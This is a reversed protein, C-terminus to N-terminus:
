EVDFYLYELQSKQSGWSCRNRLQVGAEQRGVLGVEDERVGRATVQPGQEFVLVCADLFARTRQSQALLTDASPHRLRHFRDLPNMMLTVSVPLSGVGSVM